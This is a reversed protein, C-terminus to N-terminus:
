ETINEIRTVDPQVMDMQAAAKAMLAAAMYDNVGFREFVAIARDFEQLAQPDSSNVLSM